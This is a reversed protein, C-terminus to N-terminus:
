IGFTKKGLGNTPNNTQKSKEIQKIAQFNKKQVDKPIYQNTEKELREITESWKGELQNPSETYYENIKQELTKETSQVDEKEKLKEKKAAKADVVANNATAQKTKSSSTKIEKSKDLIKGTQKTADKINSVADMVKGARRAMKLAGTTQGIGPILGGMSLGFGVYDGRALSIVGSSLDSFQSVVPIETMGIVDLGSQFNDLRSGVGVIYGKKPKM